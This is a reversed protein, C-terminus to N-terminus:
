HDDNQLIKTFRYKFGIMLTQIFFESSVKTQNPAQTKFTFDSDHYVAQYEFVIRLRPNVRKKIGLLGRYWLKGSASDTNSVNLPIIYALDSDFAWGRAIRKELRIGTTLGSHRFKSVRMKDSSVRELGGIIHSTLGAIYSFRYTSSGFATYGIRLGYINNTYKISNSESFNLGSRAENVETPLYYFYADTFWRKSLKFGSDIGFSFPTLRGQEFEIDNESYFKSSWHPGILTTFYYKESEIERSTDALSLTSSFFLLIFIYAHLM